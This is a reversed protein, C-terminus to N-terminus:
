QCLTSAGVCTIQELRQIRPPKGGAFVEVAARYTTKSQNHTQTLTGPIRLHVIGNNDDLVIADKSPVFRSDFNPAGNQDLYGEMHKMFDRWGEATFDPRARSLSSLDGERFNLARVAAKQAFAVVVHQAGKPQTEQQAFGSVQIILSLLLLLHCPVAVDWGTRKM